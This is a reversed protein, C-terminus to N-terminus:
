AEEAPLPDAEANPNMPDLHGEEIDTIFEDEYRAEADEVSDAEVVRSYIFTRKARLTIKM